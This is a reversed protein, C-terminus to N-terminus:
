TDLISRLTTILSKMAGNWDATFDVYHIDTLDTTSDIKMDPIECPELM